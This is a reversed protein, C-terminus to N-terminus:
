KMEVDVIFCSKEFDIQGKIEDYMNFIEKYTASHHRELGEVLNVLMAMSLYGSDELMAFVELRRKLNGIDIM